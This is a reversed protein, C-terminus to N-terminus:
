PGTEIEVVKVNFNFDKFTKELIKAKRRVEITQSEFDIDDSELLLDLGPLVYEEAGAPLKTDDLHALAERNRQAEDEKKKKKPARVRPPEPDAAIHPDDARVQVS